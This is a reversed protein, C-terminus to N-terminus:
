KVLEGGVVHQIYYAKVGYENDPILYRIARLKKLPIGHRGFSKDVYQVEGNEMSLITVDTEVDVDTYNRVLTADCPFSVQESKPLPFAIYEVKGTKITQLDTSDKTGYTIVENAISHITVNTIPKFWTKSMISYVPYPLDPFVLPFSLNEQPTEVIETSSDGSKEIQSYVNNVLRVSNTEDDVSFFIDSKPRVIFESGANIVAKSGCIFCSLFDTFPLLVVTLPTRNKGTIYINGNDVPFSSGDPMQIENVQIGLRGKTGWWLSRKAKYVIGSVNTGYPIVTVGDVKIDRGVGFSVRQGISLDIARMNNRAVIPISFGVSLKLIKKKSKPEETKVNENGFVESDGNEFNIRSIDTKEIHYVPGELNNWKKYTIQSTGVESVRSLITTGDKKVIVDQAMLNATCLVYLLFILKRM